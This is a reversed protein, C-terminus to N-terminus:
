TGILGSEEFSLYGKRSVILHDLVRIGLIKGAEVLRIQTKMDEDSPQLDGSPHNHAIIVAAARDTIVDAFV